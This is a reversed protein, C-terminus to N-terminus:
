YDDKEDMGVHYPILPSKIFQKSIHRAKLLAEDYNENYISHEIGRSDMVVTFGGCKKWKRNLRKGNGLSVQWESSIDGYVNADDEWRQETRSRNNFSEKPYFSNLAQYSM